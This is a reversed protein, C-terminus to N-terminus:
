IIKKVILINIITAITMAATLWLIWKTLRSLTTNYKETNNISKQIVETLYQLSKKMRYDLIATIYERKSPDLISIDKILDIDSKESLGDTSDSKHEKEM